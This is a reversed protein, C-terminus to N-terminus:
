AAVEVRNRGNEKAHYLGTDVREILSMASEGPCGEAVGFSCTVRGVEPFDHLEVAQRLKEAFRRVEVANCNPALIAFEEGGWRAFVDQERVMGSILKTLGRLVADGTQHGFTDNVRKFHDIDLLMLACPQRYREARHMEAQLVTDFERRNAIGTLSDTSAQQRLIAEAQKRNTIDRVIGIGHWKGRIQVSSLSLEAFFTTGDKRLAEVETTNNILAGEGSHAFGAFGARQQEHYRQPVIFDHPDKGLMEESSYGFLTVAAKNWFTVKSDNDIMVIADQAASTILRLVEEREKLETTRERVLGELEEKGRKLVQEAEKNQTIETRISVYQYPIGADDLFPVITTAVWYFSGDKRRNRIEGQWVKGSAITQWMGAFFDQPHYGSSLLRHDQGLLEEASYQSVRCFKDNVYTILGRADSISVIAHEDLGRKQFGLENLSQELKSATGGLRLLLAAMLKSVVVGILAALLIATLGGAFIYAFAQRQQRAATNVVEQVEEAQYQFLQYLVKLVREQSPITKGVLLRVAESQQGSLALDIVQEQLHMTPETFERQRELLALEEPVLHYSLLAKRAEGFQAGLEYFRQVKEDRSFPDTDYVIDLLLNTRDRATARMEYALSAHHNHEAVIESYTVGIGNIRYLTFVLLALMLVVILGFGIAIARTSYHNLFDTAFKDLKM